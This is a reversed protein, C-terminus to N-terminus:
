KQIEAETRRHTQRNIERFRDTETDRDRNIDTETHIETEGIEPERRLGGRDNDEM